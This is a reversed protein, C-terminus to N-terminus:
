RVNVGGARAREIMWELARNNLQTGIEGHDALGGDDRLFDLANEGAIRTTPFMRQRATKRAHDLQKVNSPVANPWGQDGPLVEAPNPIMEVADFLGVWNVQVPKHTIYQTRDFL